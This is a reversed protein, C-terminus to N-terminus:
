EFSVEPFIDGIHANIKQHSGAYIIYSARLYKQTELIGEHGLYASLFPVTNEMDRGEADSKMFSHIVFIHRMCHPCPGREHISGRAYYINAKHLIKSFWRWFTSSDYPKGPNFHSEFVYNRGGSGSFVFGQYQMLVIKLSDSFPVLRQKQNKAEHVTIIGRDLDIEKWTITLAERLRLGCGYLIRLAIPFQIGAPSGNTHAQCNDAADFISQLEESTFIYPVYDQRLIPPEPLVAQYGISILYKAFGRIDDLIRAKTQHKVNKEDLWAKVLSESLTKDAVPLSALYIDLGKLSSKIKEIYRGSSAVLKIYNNIEDAFVSDFVYGMM